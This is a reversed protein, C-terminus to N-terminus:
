HVTLTVIDYLSNLSLLVKTQADSITGTDNTVVGADVPLQATILHIFSYM